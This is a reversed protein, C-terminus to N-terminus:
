SPMRTPSARAVMLVPLWGLLLYTVVTTFFFSTWLLLDRRSQPPWVSDRSHSARAGGPAGRSEGGLCSRNPLAFVMVAGPAATRHRGRLFRQAM